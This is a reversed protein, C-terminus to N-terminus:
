IADLACNRATDILARHPRAAGTRSIWMATSRQLAEEKQKLVAAAQQAAAEAIGDSQVPAGASLAVWNNLCSSNGRQPQM